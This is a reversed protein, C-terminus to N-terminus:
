SNSTVKSVFYGAKRVITVIRLTIAIITITSPTPSPMPIVAAPALDEIGSMKPLVAINAMTQTITDNTVLRKKYADASNITQKISISDPMLFNPDEFLACFLRTAESFGRM